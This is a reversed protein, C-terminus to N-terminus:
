FNDKQLTRCLVKYLKNNYRIAKNPINPIFVSFSIHSSGKTNDERKTRTKCVYHTTYNLSIIAHKHYMYVSRNNATIPFKIAMQNPGFKLKFDTNQGIQYQNLGWWAQCKPQVDSFYRFVIYSYHNKKTIVDDHKISSTM